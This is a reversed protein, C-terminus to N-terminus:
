AAGSTHGIKVLCETASGIAGTGVGAAVVIMGLCMGLGPAASGAVSGVTTSGIAAQGITTCQGSVCNVAVLGDTCIKGTAGPPINELAVGLLCVDTASSVPVVSIKCVTAFNVDSGATSYGWRPIFWPGTTATSINAATTDIRVAMGRTITTTAHGNVVDEVGQIFAASEYYALGAASRLLQPREFKAYGSM